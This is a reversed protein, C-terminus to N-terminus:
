VNSKQFHWLKAWFLGFKALQPHKPIRLLEEQQHASLNKFNICGPSLFQRFRSPRLSETALQIYCESSSLPCDLAQIVNVRSSISSARESSWTSLKLAEAWVNIEARFLLIITALPISFTCTNEPCKYIVAFVNAPLRCRAMQGGTGPWGPWRATRSCAWSRRADTRPSLIETRCM